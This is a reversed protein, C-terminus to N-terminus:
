GLGGLLEEKIKRFKEWLERKETEAPDLTGLNRAMRYCGPDACPVAPLPNAAVFRHGAPCEFRYLDKPM